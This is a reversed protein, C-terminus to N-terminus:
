SFITRTAFGYDERIMDQAQQVGESVIVKYQTADRLKALQEKRRESIEAITPFDYVQEGKIIIPVLLGEATDGENLYKSIDEGEFAIVDRKYFGDTGTIRYVQKIGPLTSKERSESLKGRLILEEKDDYFAALKYVGEVPKPPNVVFTGLLYKDIDAEERELRAIKGATLDDSAILTYRERGYGRDKMQQHIWHAQQLLNGSDIRFACHELNEEEVISLATEFAKQLNYTDLLFCVKDRLTNTQAKFASYEDPHLMVYSHGHTGGVKEQYEMGFAVNSSATFGGIRAARSNFLASQPSGARRSGGELIIKNTVEAIDNATSAVNTQPNITNLIVSEFVQAEEFREHVRLQHEQAFFITGEPMGYVDGTFRLQEVWDLFEPDTIGQAEQLYTKLETNGRAELFYAAIQELGANILFDRKVREDYKVGEREFEGVVKNAPMRRVVLDFIAQRGAIKEQQNAHAMSYEYYDGVAVALDTTFELPNPNRM